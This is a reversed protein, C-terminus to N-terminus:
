ASNRASAQEECVAEQYCDWENLLEEECYEETGRALIDGEFVLAFQGGLQVVEFDSKVYQRM